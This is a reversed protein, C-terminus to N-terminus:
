RDSIQPNQLLLVMEEDSNTSVIDPYKEAFHHFTEQRYINWRSFQEMLSFFSGLANNDSLRFFIFLFRVDSKSYIQLGTPFNTNGLWLAAAGWM